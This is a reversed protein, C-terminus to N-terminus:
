DSAEGSDTSSVNSGGSPPKLEQPKKKPQYGKYEEAGDGKKPPQYGHDTRKPEDNSSM